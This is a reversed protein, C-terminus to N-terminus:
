RVARWRGSLTLHSGWARSITRSSWSFTSSGSAPNTSWSAPLAVEDPTELVSDPEGTM